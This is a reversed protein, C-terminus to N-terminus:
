NQLEKWFVMEMMGEVPDRKVILLGSKVLPSNEARAKLKISFYTSGFVMVSGYDNLVRQLVSDDEESVRDIGIKSSLIDEQGGDTGDVLEIQNLNTFYNTEMDDMQVGADYAGYGGSGAMGVPDDYLSEAGLGDYLGDLGDEETPPKRRPQGLDPTDAVNTTVGEGSEDYPQMGYRHQNILVAVQNAQGDAGETLSPLLAYLVPVSATNLNIKGTSFTTFIERMGMPLTPEAVYESDSEEDYLQAPGTMGRTLSNGELGGIGPFNMHSGFQEELEQLEEHRLAQEELFYDDYTFNAVLDGFKDRSIVFGGDLILGEEPIEKPVPGFYLESTVNELNLLEATDYLRNQVEATRRAIVYDVIEDAIQSSEYTGDYFFGRDENLSIVVEIARALMQTTAELREASPEVFEMLAREEGLGMAAEAATVSEDEPTEPDDQPAEDGQGPRSRERANGLLGIEERMRRALTRSGEEGTGAEQALGALDGETLTGDPGTVAGDEEPVRVYRFIRNLDFRRENDVIEVKVEVDGLSQTQSNFVAELLYDIHQPSGGAAVGPSAGGVGAIPVFSSDDATADGGGAGGGGAGGRGAGGRGGGARGGGALGADADGPNAGPAGAGQSDAGESYDQSLDEVLQAVVLQAVSYLADQSQIDGHRVQAVREEMKTYFHLHFVVMYLVVFLIMVVM